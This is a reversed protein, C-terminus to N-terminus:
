LLILFISMLIYTNYHRMITRARTYVLLGVINIRRKGMRRSNNEEDSCSSDSDYASVVIGRQDDRKTFVEKLNEKWRHLPDTVSSYIHDPLNELYLGVTNRLPGFNWISTWLILPHRTISAMLSVVLLAICAGTSSTTRSYISLAVISLCRM